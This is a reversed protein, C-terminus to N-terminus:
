RPVRSEGIGWGVQLAKLFSQQRVECTLREDFFDKMLGPRPATALYERPLDAIQSPLELNSHTVRQVVVPAHTIGLARLAYLRHFGNNLIIRDGLRYVNITSSGYGVLLVVARIPQGGPHHDEMMAAEYPQEYVGLFRLGPNESSFTFANPGSRGAIAPTQDQGPHLCFNLINEASHAYKSTLREIFDVHVTRQSAVIKDIEVEEFSVPFNSFTKNFAPNLHLERLFDAAEQPLLRTDITAAIGPEANVLEQFHEAAALWQTKIERKREESDISNAELFGNLEIQTVAGYMYLLRRFIEAAPERVAVVQTGM